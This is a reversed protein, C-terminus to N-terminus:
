LRSKEFLCTLFHYNQSPDDLVQRLNDKEICVASKIKNRVFDRLYYFDSEFDVYFGAQPLILRPMDDIKIKRINEFTSYDFVNLYFLGEFLM